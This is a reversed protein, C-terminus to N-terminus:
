SYEQLIRCAYDVDSGGQIQLAIEGTQTFITSTKYEEKEKLRKIREIKEELQMQREKQKGQVKQILKEQQKKGEM